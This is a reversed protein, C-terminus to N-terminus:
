IEHVNYISFIKKLIRTYTHFEKSRLILLLIEKGVIFKTKKFQWLLNM